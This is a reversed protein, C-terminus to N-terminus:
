RPDSPESVPADTTASQDRINGGAAATRSRPHPVPTGIECTKISRPNLTYPTSAEGVITAAKRARKGVAGTAHAATSSDSKKPRAKSPTTAHPRKKKSSPSICRLRTAFTAATKGPPPLTKNVAGLSLSEQASAM